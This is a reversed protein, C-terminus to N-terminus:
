KNLNKVMKPNNQEWLEEILSKDEPVKDEKKIPKPPAKLPQSLVKVADPHSETTKDLIQEYFNKGKQQTQALAFPKKGKSKKSFLKKTKDTAEDTYEIAIQMAEYSEPEQDDQNETKETIEQNSQEVIQKVMESTKEEDQAQKLDEKQLDDFSKGM